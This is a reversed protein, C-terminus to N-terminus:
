ENDFERKLLTHAAIVSNKILSLASIRWSFGRGSLDKLIYKDKATINLIEEIIFFGQDSDSEKTWRRIEGVTFHIKQWNKNM